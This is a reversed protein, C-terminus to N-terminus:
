KMLMMKKVIQQHEFQLKSFYIGSPLQKANFQVTHIVGAEAMGNFLTGIEQGILNYVSLMARGDSPVTFSINTTPNFPNPYNGNLSLVAPTGVVHVEITKSYESKGDKDIQKLRYEFTGKSLNGDTFSYSTPSNVNGSGQVFGIGSWDSMRLQGNDLIRREIAFGYNDVETATTWALETKGLGPIATFSVLEVPLPASSSASTWRSFGDIGSLSIINSTENVTGGFLVWSTGNDTSKFLVLNTEAISNLESEDYHFVIDANLGSNVAPSIDFYRKIGENGAGTEATGTVRTVSTLGPAAGSANIEVGLGGFTDNSSQALTRTTTMNGIITNGATENVTATSGLTISNVGTYLLGAMVTLSNQVYLNTSLTTKRNAETPNNIVLNWFHATSASIQFGNTTDGPSTSVGNGISITGGTINYTPGSPMKIDLGSGSWKIPDIINIAGDSMTFTCNTTGFELTNSTAGRFVNDQPDLNLTGGTINLTGSTNTLDGNLNVTGNQINITGGTNVVKVNGKVAAPVGIDVTGTTNITITGMIGNSGGNGVINSTMIVNANGSVLFTGPDGFNWGAGNGTNASPMTLTGTTVEFIGSLIHMGENGSSIGMAPLNCVVKDSQSGRNIVIKHFIVTTPTGSSSITQDGTGTGGNFIVEVGKTSASYIAFTSGNGISLNGGLYVTDIITVTLGHVFRGGNNITMNGSVTLKRATTVNEFKLVGTAGEGITVSAVAADQNIIVSDGNRIFVVDTSSNGPVTATAGWSGGGDTSKVWTSSLSWNASAASRYQDQANLSFAFFIGAIFTYIIYKTKM